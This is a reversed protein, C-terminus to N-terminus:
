QSSAQLSITALQQIRASLWIVGGINENTTPDFWGGKVETTLSAMENLLTLTGPQRLQDDNLKVLQVADKRVQELDNIMRSIVGDVQIAVKQQEVTHGPSGALGTLHIDVHQLFGPPEQSQTYSLLGLKGAVSDVLWPSGAPVDQWVYSSGDIYDLIRLFHRHLLAAADNPMQAGWGGQAASSWEEVKSVNRPMWIVLGGSINNAQLTPYQALLHRLHSLLSYQKEDGPTPTHPVWGEWRWTQPDLSPTSPTTSAPQETIRVGSYQALLNTHAPSAYHITANGGKVSLRGLLLPIADDNTQDPMFWAFYAMGAHPNTLSHLSLNVIDNYGVTTAPDYQGSDGLTLTGVTTPAVAAVNTKPQVPILMMPVLVVSGVLLVMIILAILLYPQRKTPNPTPTPAFSPTQPLPAVQVQSKRFSTDTEAPPTVQRARASTDMEVPPTAQKTRVSTDVRGLPAVQSASFFPNTEPLPTIPGTNRPSPASPKAEKRAPLSSYHALVAQLAEEDSASVQFAYQAALIREKTRRPPMVFHLFPPGQGRNLFARLREFHDLQSFVGEREPLVLLVPKNQQRLIELVSAISDHQEIQLISIIAPHAPLVQSTSRDDILQANDIRM